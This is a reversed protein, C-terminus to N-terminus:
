SLATLKARQESRSSGFLPSPWCSIECLTSILGRGTSRVMRCSKKLVWVSFTSISVACRLKRISERERTETERTAGSRAACLGAQSLTRSTANSAM